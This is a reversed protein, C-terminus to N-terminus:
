IKELDLVSLYIIGSSPQHIENESLDAGDSQKHDRKFIDDLKVGRRNCVKFVLAELITGNAKSPKQLGLISSLIQRSNISGPGRPIEIDM